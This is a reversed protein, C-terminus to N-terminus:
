ENSRRIKMESFEVTDVGATHQWVLGETNRRGWKGNLSSYLCSKYWWAGFYKKACSYYNALDNDQDFTSFNQGNHYELNDGATGSYSGVHLKYKEEEGDISFMGYNAFRSQGKYKLDVRLEYRGTSTITHINDNGLWFENDLSGFGAKYSAWNRYFDVEGTYRRQIVIWGGGDTVTDCLLPTELGLIESNYIVTYQASSPYLVTGNKKCSKLSFSEIFASKVKGLITSNLNKAMSQFANLTKSVSEETNIELKQWSHGVKGTIFSFEEKIKDTLNTIGTMLEGMEKKTGAIQDEFSDELSQLKAKITELRGGLQDTSNKKAKMTELKVDLRDISNLKAELSEIKLEMTELNVDWRNTKNLKAEMTKLKVDLRDISNMKAELSEIKLEMTELKVGLRDTNNMKAEMTALKLYIRDMFSSLESVNSSISSWDHASPVSLDPTQEVCPTASTMVLLSVLRATTFLDRLGM